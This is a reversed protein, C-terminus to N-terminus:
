EANTVPFAKETDEKTPKKRIFFINEPGSKLLIM